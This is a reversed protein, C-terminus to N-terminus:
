RAYQFPIMITDNVRYSTDQTAYTITSGNKIDKAEYVRKYNDSVNSSSIVVAAIIITKMQNYNVEKILTPQHIFTIIEVIDSVALLYLIKGIELIWYLNFTKYHEWYIDLLLMISTM